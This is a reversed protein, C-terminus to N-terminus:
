SLRAISAWVEGRWRTVAWVVGGLGRLWPRWAGDELRYVGEGVAARAGAPDGTEVRVFTGEAELIRDVEGAVLLRGRRLIAM